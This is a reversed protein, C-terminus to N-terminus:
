GDDTGIEISTGVTEPDYDKGEPYFIIEYPSDPDDDWEWDCDFLWDSVVGGKMM